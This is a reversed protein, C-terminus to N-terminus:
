LYAQLDNLGLKNPNPGAWQPDGRSKCSFQLWWLFSTLCPATEYIISLEEYDSYFRWYKGTGTHNWDVPRKHTHANSFSLYTLCATWSYEIFDQAPFNGSCLFSIFCPQFIYLNHIISCNWVLIGTYQIDCRTFHLRLGLASSRWVPIIRLPVNLSIFSRWIHVLSVTILFSVM